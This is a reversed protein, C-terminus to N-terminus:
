RACEPANQRAILFYQDRSTKAYGAKFDPSCGGSSREECNHTGDDAAALYSM